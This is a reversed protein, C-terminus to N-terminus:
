PAAALRARTEQLNRRAKAYSPDIRVALEFHDLAETLRGQNRLAVGLNNHGKAYDPQIRVARELHAIAQVLDGRRILAAGLNTHALAYVPRIEVAREFRAIAEALRGQKSRVIGLNNHAKAYDPRIRLAEEHQAAAQALKNQLEFVVGLNTHAFAYDPKISIARQFHAEAEALKGESRLVLGLSSHASYNNETARVAHEYVSLSNRWTGVQSWTAAGYVALLAASMGVLLPRRVPWRMLLDRLGWAIGIYIGLLPLYSYRDAMAQSGVQVLGVMPVLTGLYWLWGVALYTRRRASLIVLFTVCALMLGAAISPVLLTSAADASILAPHPYIIALNAPWLTKWLYAVYAVAANALRAGMPVSELTGIALGSQQALVTVVSSAASLGLLPLKELLLWHVPRAGAGSPDSGADAVYGQSRSGPLRWRRLPWVDLLLLVCPLTVLTPKSMLGLALAAFVVLYRSLAPRRAYWAYALMTLMWFLGSLVDKRESVWAVSEVRLPHVAFLTAVLACPWVAGTMFRLTLFLLVANSAHLVVNTLHAPGPEPGFLEVDLMHSLWSLPHWNAIHFSTFAWRASDWTLGQRVQPNELVYRRDDLTIFEYGGVRGYLVAVLTVLAV